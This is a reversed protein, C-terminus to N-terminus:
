ELAHLPTGSFHGAQRPPGLCRGGLMGRDCLCAWHGQVDGRELAAGDEAIETDLLQKRAQLGDVGPDAPEGRAVHVQGGGVM